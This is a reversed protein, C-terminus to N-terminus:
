FHVVATSQQAMNDKVYPLHKLFYSKPEARVTVEYWRTSARHYDASVLQVDAEQAIGEVAREAAEANGETAVFVEAAHEAAGKAVEVATRHAAYMGLGDVTLAAVIAVVVVIAIIARM